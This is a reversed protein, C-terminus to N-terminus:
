RSLKCKEFHFRIMGPGKGIKGCVDCTLIPRNHAVKSLNECHEKSRIRGTLAISLKRKTIDTAVRGKGVDSLKKKTEDSTILGKNWAVKGKNMLSLHLRMEASVIMGKAGSSKGTHSISMKRRTDDTHGSCRFKVSGNNRNFWMDSNKADFSTLFVTEYLLADGNPRPILELVEFSNLGEDLILKKIIKSTTYYPKGPGIWNPNWFQDPHIFQKKAYKSGAYFKGSAKHRILYFYELSKNM